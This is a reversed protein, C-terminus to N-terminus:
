WTIQVTAGSETVTFGRRRLEDLTEDSVRHRRVMWWNSNVAMITIAHLIEELLDQQPKRLARAEGANNVVM